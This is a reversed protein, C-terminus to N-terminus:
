NSGHSVPCLLLIILCCIYITTNLLDRTNNEYFSPERTPVLDLHMCAVLPLIEVDRATSASTYSYLSFVACGVFNSIQKNREQAPCPLPPALYASAYGTAGVLM